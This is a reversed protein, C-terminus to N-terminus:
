RYVIDDGSARLIIYPNSTWPLDGTEMDVLEFIV